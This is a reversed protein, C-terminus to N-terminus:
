KLIPSIGRFSILGFGNSDSTAAPTLLALNSWRGGNLPLNVIEQWTLTSSVEASEFQLVPAVGTVEVTETTSGTKMEPHMETLSGVTRNKASFNM